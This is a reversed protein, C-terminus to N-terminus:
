LVSAHDWKVVDLDSYTALDLGEPMNWVRVESNNMANVWRSAGLRGPEDGDFCVLVKRGTFFDLRTPVSAAGAPCGVVDFRNSLFRDAHWADSEGECLLVPLEPNQNHWEGYLVGTLKSGPLSILPRSGNSVRHKLAVLRGEKYYPVLVEKNRGRLMWRGALWMPDLLWGKASVLQQVAGPDKSTNLLKVAAEENFDLPQMIKPAKWNEKEMKLLARKAAQVSEPFSMPWLKRILDFVDGGEGCAWCGYRESDGWVYVDFSPNHDNHFPCLASLRGEASTLQINAQELIYSIPLKAKIEAPENLLRVAEEYM